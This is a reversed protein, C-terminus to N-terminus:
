GKDENIAVTQLSFHSNFIQHVMKQYTTTMLTTLAKIEKKNELNLISKNEFLKKVDFVVESASDVIHILPLYKQVMEKLFSYHTCGLILTHHVNNEIGKLYNQLITEIEPLSLTPDSEILPVLLPAAIACVETEPYKEKLLKQYIQSNVCAETALLTIKSSHIQKISDIVPQIVNFIPINMQKSISPLQNMVSATATNCAIVLAKCSYQTLFDIIHTIRHYLFEQTKEGYPCYLLDALYVISEKPLLKQLKKVTALGGIGSDFIGIPLHTMILRKNKKM